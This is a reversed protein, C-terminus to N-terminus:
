VAELKTQPHANREWLNALQTAAEEQDVKIYKLFAKETKHGTIKMLLISPFGTKYQNTAFSRRATHTSIREWKARFTSSKVGGKTKSDIGMADFSALKAIEKLFDNMKQNSIARPLNGEYKELIQRVIPHIPITVVQGTKQTQIQAVNGIINEPRLKTFDSFRLGTWCGVLFLDRVRELRPKATLDLAWLHALETEDLYVNHVDEWSVKLVPLKFDGFKGSDKVWKLVTKITKTLDANTNQSHDHTANMYAIMAEHDKASYNEVKTKKGTAAEYDAIRNRNRNLNVVTRPAYTTSRDQVFATFAQSLTWIVRVEKTQALYEAKLLEPSPIEGLALFQMLVGEVAEKFSTLFGNIEAANTASPKCKQNKFDWFNPAVSHGTSLRYRQGKHFGNLIVLAPKTSRKYEPADIAGKLYFNFKAM